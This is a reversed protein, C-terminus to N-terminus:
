ELDVSLLGGQLDLGMLNEETNQPLAQSQGACFFSAGGPLASGADNNEIAPGDISTQDKSCITVSGIDRRHFPQVRISSFPMGQLLGKHLVTGHLATETGRPHEHRCFNKEIM